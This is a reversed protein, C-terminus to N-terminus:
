PRAQRGAARAEDRGLAAVLTAKGAAADKGVAKGMAAEDGEEDLLDDVIQFASGLLRGYTM